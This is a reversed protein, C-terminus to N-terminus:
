VDKQGNTAEKVSTNYIAKHAVEHIGYLIDCFGAWSTNGDPRTEAVKSIFRLTNKMRTIEDGAQRLLAWLPINVWRQEDAAIKLTKVLEKNDM